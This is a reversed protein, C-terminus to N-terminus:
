IIDYRRVACHFRKWQVIIVNEILVNTVGAKQSLWADTKKTPQLM